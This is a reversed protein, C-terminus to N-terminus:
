TAPRTRTRQAAAKRVRRDPDRKAWQLQDVPMRKAAILRVWRDEDHTAWGLQDPSMRGAAAKRVDCDTDQTAWDLQDPPTRQAFAARIQGDPLQSIWPGLQDPPMTEALTQQVSARLRVVCPVLGTLDRLEPALQRHVLCWIGDYGSRWWVCQRWRSVQDAPFGNVKRVRRKATGRVKYQNTGPGGGTKGSNGM